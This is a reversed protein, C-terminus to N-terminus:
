PRARGANGSHSLRRAQALGCRSDSVASRRGANESLPRDVRGRLAITRDNRLRGLVGSFFGMSRSALLKPDTLPRLPVWLDPAYGSEHSEFGAPAVGIITCVKERVVVPRGLTAPDSHLAASWFAYSVVALCNSASVEDDEAVLLRGLAASVGLVQFYNGSVLSGRVYMPSGHDFSVKLYPEDSVAFMGSLSEQNRRLEEFLPNFLTFRKGRLEPKILVLREPQLVPLPRLVVANLVSFVATTAGIGLALSLVAVISFGLSKRLGRLAYRVDQMVQEFATWRWVARTDEKVLTANGFARQVAYRAQEPTAGLEQQEEAELELHAQLEREIDLDRRRRRWWM